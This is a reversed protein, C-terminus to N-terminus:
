SAGETCAPYTEGEACAEYAAQSVDVETTGDGARLTLEWEAPKYVSTNQCTTRKKAGTGTTSCVKKPKTEPADYEHGVVVGSPPPGCAAVAFVTAALAALARM